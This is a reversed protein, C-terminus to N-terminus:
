SFLKTLDVPIGAARLERTLEMRWDSAWNTYVVGTLDSPIEVDGKRVLCVAGRGLRGVFYGLEFIVNQRARLEPPEDDSSEGVLDDPSLLVVAYSVEAEAIFKEILSRGVNPRDSLVVVELGLHNLHLHVENRMAHDHGHVLFVRNNLENPRSKEGPRGSAEELEPLVRLVAQLQTVKERVDGQLNEIGAEWGLFMIARNREFGGGFRRAYSDDDFARTLYTTGAENWVTLLSRAKHLDDEIRFPGAAIGEGESIFDALRQAVEEKPRTLRPM